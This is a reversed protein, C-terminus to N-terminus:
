PYSLRGGSVPAACGTTGPFSTPLGARVRVALFAFAQAELADGDLGVAEVPAVDGLRDALWGMMTANRRGGGCVLWRAPPAPLHPLAAAVTEVTLRTLSAAGDAVSVDELQALAAAFANRDLSKPAPRALYAAVSNLRLLADDARGAAAAAGGRDMEAGTRAAMWDNLLANGPGTDFAVCAEPGERPDVWTVNAVGGINLFAVPAEAGIWRALAWHFVPALPAGEGGAAMDASRFDWAVPTRLGTALRAGDGIQWTFGEEPVHAVTQGHFGVLDPRLETMALLGEVAAVHAAEVERAAVEAAPTGRVGEWDSLAARAAAMSGGGYGFAGAPGFRAITEGDTELLAADVGDMSTGSMLGLAWVPEAM